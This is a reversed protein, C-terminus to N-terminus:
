FIWILLLVIVILAIIGGGGGWAYAHGAEDQIAENLKERLEKASMAGGRQLSDKGYAAQRLSRIVSL